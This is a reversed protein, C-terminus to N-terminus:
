NGNLTPRGTECSRKIGPRTDPGKREADLLSEFKEDTVLNICPLLKGSRQMWEKASQKQWARVGAIKSRVRSRSILGSPEDSKRTHSTNLVEISQATLDKIWKKERALIEDRPCRELKQWEFNKLGMDRMTKHFLDSANTSAAREHEKVRDELTRDTKGVYWKGDIRCRAGYVISEPM